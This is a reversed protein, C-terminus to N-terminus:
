SGASRRGCLVAESPRGGGWSRPLFHSFGMKAGPFHASLCAHSLAETVQHKWDPDESLNPSPLVQAWEPDSPLSVPPWSRKHASSRLRQSSGQPAPGKKLGGGKGEGLTIEEGGVGSGNAWMHRMGDLHHGQASPVGEVAWNGGGGEKGQLVLVHWM